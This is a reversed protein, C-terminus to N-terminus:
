CTKNISKEMHSQVLAPQNFCKLQKTVKYKVPAILLGITKCRCYSYNLFMRWGSPVLKHPCACLLIRSPTNRAADLDCFTGFHPSATSPLFCRHTLFARKFDYCERYPQLPFLRTFIFCGFAALTSILAPQPKWPGSFGPHLTPPFSFYGPFTFVELSTFCCCYGVDCFGGPPEGLCIGDRSIKSRNCFDGFFMFFRVQVLSFIVLTLPQKHVETTNCLSTILVIEHM